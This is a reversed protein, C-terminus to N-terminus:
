EEHAALDALDNWHCALCWIRERGAFQEESLSVWAGCRPCALLREVAGDVQRVLLHWARVM